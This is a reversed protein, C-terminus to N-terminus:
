AFLGKSRMLPKPNVLHKSFWGNLPKKAGLGMSLLESFHLTPISHKLSCRIELNLHCMACATVLCEAGADIADQIIENVKSTMAEPRVASLYSGCCQSYHRWRVPEAGILSLTKEMLGSYNKEHRMEPPRSLMCGYYPAVKLGTLIKPLEKIKHLIDMREFIEFFHIIELDTDPLKGWNQEFQKKANEDNKLHINERSLRLLCNPCAVLLPRGHPALALNRTILKSSLDSNISHASSSGCCNWDELEILEIGFQKFVYQLSQENEKATTSLSCGPFYSFRTVNNNDM